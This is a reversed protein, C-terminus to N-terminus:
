FICNISFSTRQHSYIQLKSWFCPVIWCLIIEIAFYFIPNFSILKSVSVHYVTFFKFWNKVQMLYLLRKLQATRYCWYTTSTSSHQLTYGETKNEERLATFLMLRTM